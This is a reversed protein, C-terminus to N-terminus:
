FRRTHPNVQKLIQQLSLSDNFGNFILSNHMKGRDCNIPSLIILIFVFRKKQHMKM